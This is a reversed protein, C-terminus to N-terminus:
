ARARVRAHHRAVPGRRGRSVGVSTAARGIDRRARSALKGFGGVRRLSRRLARSNTVNMRRYLCKGTPIFNRKQVYKGPPCEMELGTRGGPLIREIGRRIPGREFVAGGGQRALAQAMTIRAGKLNMPGGHAGIRLAGSALTAVGGMIGGSLMTGGLGQPMRMLGATLPNKKRFLSKIGKFAMGALAGLGLFPDGQYYDGAIYYDGQYYAM